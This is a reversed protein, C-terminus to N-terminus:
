TSGSVMFVYRVHYGDDPDDPPYSDVFFCSGGGRGQWLHELQTWVQLKTPDTLVPSNLFSVGGLNEADSMMIQVIAKPKPPLRMEEREYSTVFKEALEVHPDGDSEDLFKLEHARGSSLLFKQGFARNIHDFNARQGVRDKQEQLWKLDEKSVLDPRELLEDFQAHVALLSALLLAVLYMRDFVSRGM